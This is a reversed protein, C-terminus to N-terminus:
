GRAGMWDAVRARMIERLDEDAIEAVAEEVFSGVLMAEAQRLPIGRAMLYFLGGEDLAGTTSGHSCKVDDAYIELEPKASFEADDSLLVSQSIQYGDTKQAVQRVFIKGQFIAKAAGDLVQKFVQRSECREAGHTVFVTNDVHSEGRGLVAGAIHGQADDGAFEMVVENRTLSGDATLTFTQFKAGAGLRAFVHTATPREPADQLRIHRLVAGPALDIEMVTNGAIGSELLTVAGGSEVRVLHRLLAAGEGIQTHALHLPEAVAGTVHLAAGETAAATNLAALPRAVKEQGAAELAGFLGRAWTVDHALVEGLPAIALGAQAADDSLDPRQRGNVFAIRRAAHGAFLALASPLGGEPAPAVPAAPATLATPDTYKWYEDRRIPAGADLLRSRARARADRAWASEGEPLPLAALLAEATRRKDDILKESLM